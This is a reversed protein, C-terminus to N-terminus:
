YMIKFNGSKVGERFFVMGMRWIDITMTVREDKKIIEWAEEMEESYRIDDFIIVTDNGSIKIMESFYNIVPEKRHNGDIFILGPNGPLDMISPLLEEFSGTLVRINDYGEERFNEVAIDSIDKSGEMTYVPAGTGSALYMTSIGVSTGFEISFPKGFESAM